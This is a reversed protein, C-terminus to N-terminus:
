NRKYSADNNTKYIFILGFQRFSNNWFSVVASNVGTDRKKKKKKKVRFTPKYDWTETHQKAVQM